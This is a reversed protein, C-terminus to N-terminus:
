RPRGPPVSSTASMYVPPRGQAARCAWHFSKRSSPALPTTMGVSVSGSGGTWSPPSTVAVGAPNTTRVILVFEAGRDVEKPLEVSWTFEEATGASKCGALMAVVGLSVVAALNKM